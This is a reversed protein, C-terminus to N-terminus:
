FAIDLASRDGSRISVAIADVQPLVRHVFFEAAHRKGKYYKAESDTATELRQEALIAQETLVRALVVHGFLDLYPSACLAPYHVDGTSNYQGFEMTLATLTNKADDIKQVLHACPSEKHESIFRNMWQIFSMFMIGGKRAIKRGILDLAQIGNTGEYIAAIKIDRLLGEVKYEKIYGYGGHTMIAMDVVEFGRYTGYAKCIPTLIEVLHRTERKKTEDTEINARDVLNATMLLLARIGESYCKMTLLMRRVDPHKIIAVREASADRISAIDTGQVREKAYNLALQYAWNAISSGQLGVAIRAENMMLFMHNIGSGEEGLIWGHCENNDGFSISCTPSGHIGMKEELSTITVDNSGGELRDRPVVFLSVGKIGPVSDPTRALVLHIVNDTMDQDAASIFCKQGRIKYYGQGPVQTASTSLDGVASGAQPETLCMTGGWKGTLMKECYTQVLEPTGVEYIVRSAASALGQIFSFSPCAGIFMDSVAATLTAPLEQGGVDPKANMAGWGSQAFAHFAKHFSPPLRVKGDEISAGINEADVNLPYIVERAFREGESLIMEFDEWTFDAWKEAQALEEIRLQERLVFRIDQMDVRYDV